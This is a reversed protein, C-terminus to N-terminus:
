FIDGYFKMGFNFRTLLMKAVSSLKLKALCDNIRGKNSPGKLKVVRRENRGTMERIPVQHPGLDHSTAKPEREGGGGSFIM